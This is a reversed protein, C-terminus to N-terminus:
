PPLRVFEAVNFILRDFAINPAPGRKPPQLAANWRIIRAVTPRFSDSQHQLDRSARTGLWFGDRRAEM